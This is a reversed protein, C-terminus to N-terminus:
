NEVRVVSIKVKRGSIEMENEGGARIEDALVGRKIEESFERLVVNLMEDATTFEVVVRDEVTMKKEKRIQNIARVIERALGEKELQETIAINLGVKWDGDSKVKFTDSEVIQDAGVIKVEKVNLEEAIVGLYEMRLEYNTIRLEGLPQRVKIGNEARLALGMEVFKRAVAMRELVENNVLGEDVTPWSELHVSEKLKGGTLELYIKEAMFPTFPAMVKALTLLVYELTATAFRADENNDGKFRDRSRRVYWTSLEDVFEKIPRGAKITNYNDMNATVEKILVQLKALIWKDLINKTMGVLGSLRTSSDGALKSLGPSGEAESPIVNVVRGVKTLAEEKAGHAGASLDAPLVPLVYMEYFSVVNWLMNLVKNYAEGVESDNFYLNDSDMVVSTMLYYRLADVGYKEIILWPDTYNMKSKSLKEGKENLITGTCVVNEFSINDFLLVALAHMYYFWARTQAIYEGIFQGPFRGEFIEKNEFPYHFEAFPMSGSEVWCDIVEPVRKMEGACKDCKLKIKDMNHKHLDLKEVEDTSYADTFNLAKERLEKVSGVCVVNGCGTGQEMNHTGNCRWFPLPTAWYRNRSINWDPATELINLFRGRKLHDPHWNIKENLEILRPKIAQINIFWASIANYFLQTDCRWCHPYSHTYQERKFLLGRRELDNKIEKEAKKFYQGRVLEPAYDNFVGKGDLLPVMPLDIKLGLNYDDEGYVVATHVVGTGEETTVFDAAVVYWAKKGSNKVAEIAFLPEYELGVLESGKLEKIVEFEQGKLVVEVRERALILFEEAVKAVVYDIDSGVALAVNGPLTWPTTTWALICTNEPLNHSEPNKVKFKVTATEETIDKYSNDMAIEAKSVPTECRPCYMLVKRGEYILGKDWITKVAWWVSEMYGSDMTKYANDFEVWRGERDVMKKWEKTYLLVKSRCAENFKDVGMEEIQKKGSIKLEKEILSEIPLGHCDWGWRRRVKYGRMTWYRPVVDKIVSSLIHGYHPLGTAFPPGDYFVYPRNDPRENVSKEFIRNEEWYKLIEQENENANYPM